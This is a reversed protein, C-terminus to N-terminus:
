ECLGSSRYDDLIAVSSELEGGRWAELGERVALAAIVLAAVADAWWLGLLSNALLGLLAAGSLYTCLLLQKADAQVSTSGLERGTRTEVWALLPMVLLSLMAIGIGWPSEEPREGMVLSLVADIVLYAALLFFAIAIARVASREWREPDERTFQWAVAIASLTEIVSDLGFGILAASGAATGASIAVIAELVNYAITFGVIFRVRRRLRDRRTVM